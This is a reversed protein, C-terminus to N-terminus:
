QNDKKEAGLATALELNVIQTDLVNKAEKLEIIVQKMEEVNGALSVKNLIEQIIYNGM